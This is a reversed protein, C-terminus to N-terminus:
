DNTKNNIKDLYRKITRNSDIIVLTSWSLSKSQIDAFEWDDSIVNISLNQIWEPVGDNKIWIFNENNDRRVSNKSVKYIDDETTKIKARISTRHPLNLNNDIRAKVEVTHSMSDIQSSKKTVLAKHIQNENNVVFFEIEDWINLLSFYEEPLGFVIEKKNKISLSTSVWTLEYISKNPSIIQWVDIMRKSVKWSFPSIVKTHWSKALEAQLSAKAANLANKAMEIKQTQQAKTLNLNNSATIVINDKSKDVVNLGEESMKLMEEQKAIQNSLETIKKDESSLFTDIANFADEINEKKTLLSTQLTHINNIASNLDSKSYSNSTWSALLMKETSVVLNNALDIYAIIKERKWIVDYLVYKEEETILMRFATVTDQLTWTDLTWFNSAIDSTTFNSYNDNKWWDTITNQITQRVHLVTVETQELKQNLNSIHNAYKAKKDLLAKELNDKALTLSVKSTVITQKSADIWAIEKNTITELLNKSLNISQSSVNLANNYEDQALKLRTRKEQILSSSQGEVWPPLLMAITQWEYIEDWIDVFIDKVIWQRRPYIDAVENSIIKWFLNLTNFDNSITLWSTKLKIEKQTSTKKKTTNTNSDSGSLFYFSWIWISVIILCSLILRINLLKKIM